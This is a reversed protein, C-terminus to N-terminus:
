FFFFSILVTQSLKVKTNRLNALWYNCSKSLTYTYITKAIKEEEEEEEQKQKQKKTKKKKKKKKKKKRM